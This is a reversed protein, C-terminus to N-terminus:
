LSLLTKNNLVLPMVGVNLCKYWVSDMGYITGSAGAWKYMYDGIALLAFSVTCVTLHTAKEQNHFSSEVKSEAITFSNDETAMLM